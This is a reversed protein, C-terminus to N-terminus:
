RPSELWDLPVGAPRAPECYMRTGDLDLHVSESYVGVEATRFTDRGDVSVAALQFLVTKGSLAPADQGPQAAYDGQAAVIYHGLSRVRIDAPYDAFFAWGGIATAGRDLLQLGGMVGGNLDKAEPERPVWVWEILDARGYQETVHAVYSAVWDPPRDQVPTSGPGPSTHSAGEAGCSGLLGAASVVAVLACVFTVPMRRLSAFM